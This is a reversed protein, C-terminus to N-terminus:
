GTLAVPFSEYGRLVLRARRVPEGARALGPFRDLLAPLATTAELKALQAGLCFHAGGGFSLPQSDKRLPDFVDPDVYRAGDRNASGLLLFVGGKDPVPLGALELGGVLPVRTTLQVPSDYRLVEETFSAAPIRGERLGALTWPHQFALELGNGLLNTTTEFGAVLLLVLNALLEEDTLRADAGDAAQVLASVLDERPHARREAALEAFYDRLEEGARDAAALEEESVLVELAATLDTALGRFRYRDQEPVGLLECIVTVPLRFAFTDMFDVPRGDAGREALEDLMRAVSAEVAPALLAVRRATFVSAILSRMRAHDPANVELISKSLLQLSSHEVFAPEFVERRPADPVGFRADRLLQHVTAYDTAILMDDWVPVAPGLARARQYLPYPDAAGAPSLLANIIETGEDM